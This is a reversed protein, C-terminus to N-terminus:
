RNWSASLPVSWSMFVLAGVLYQIQLYDISHYSYYQNSKETELVILCSNINNTILSGILYKIIAWTSLILIKVWIGWVLYFDSHVGAGVSKQDPELGQSYCQTKM